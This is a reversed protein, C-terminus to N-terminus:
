SEEENMKRWIVWGLYLVIVLAGLATAFSGIVVWDQM